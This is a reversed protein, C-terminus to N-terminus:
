AAAAQPEAPTCMNASGCGHIATQPLATPACVTRTVTDYGVRRLHDALAGDMAQAHQPFWDALERAMQRVMALDGQAGKVAGMKLIDLVVKHQATHCNDPAFGTDVMWRDEQAFHEATHEVLRQWAPILADDSAGDAVALLAVFELHTTDMQPLGMALAESWELAPM